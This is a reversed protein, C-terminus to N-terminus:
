VQANEQDHNVKKSPITITFTTGKGLTSNVSISGGNAEAFEKCLMLGLGTGSESNTGKTTFGDLKFLNKLNEPAIGVGTDTVQITVKQHDLAASISIKGGSPTFKIANSLLNRIITLLTDYDAYATVSNNCNTEITIGKESAPLSAVEVAKAILETVNIHKPNLTLKGTQSRAWSLLNETLTLVNSASQYIHSSFEKVESPSLENAKTALIESLGVLATFPSRLDHAVISFLKDKTKITQELEAQYQKLKQNIRDVEEYKERQLRALNKKQNFLYLTGIVVFLLFIVVTVLLNRQAKQKNIREKDLEVKTRLADVEAEILKIETKTKDLELNIHAEINAESRKANDLSDKLFVYRQYLNLANQYRGQAKEIESLSLTGLLVLYANGVRKGIRISQNITEKAEKYKGQLSHIEGIKRLCLAEGEANLNQRYKEMAKNFHSLALDLNKDQREINGLTNYLDSLVQNQNSRLAIKIAQTITSRAKSPKNWDLYTQAINKLIRTVQLDDGKKESLELAKQYANIANAYQKQDYYVNGLNQYIYIKLDPKVELNEVLGMAEDIYKQANRFLGLKRYVLSINVLTRAIDEEKGYSQRIKLSLLYRRLAEPYDEISLFTNGLENQISAETLPDGIEKSLELAKNLAEIAEANSKQMLYAKAINNLTNISSQKFGLSEKIHLSQTYYEIAKAPQSFKLYVGGLINLIDAVEDYLKVNNALQIANNLHSLSKGFDGTERYTLGINKLVQIIRLTDKAKEAAILAEFYSKLAESYNGFNWHVSGISQNCEAINVDYKKAIALAETKKALADNYQGIEKYIDGRLLLSQILLHKNKEKLAILRAKENVKIAESYNGSKLLLASKNLLAEIHINQNKNSQAISIASDIHNLADATLGTGSKYESMSIHYLAKLTDNPNNRIQTYLRNCNIAAIEPNEISYKKVLSRLSDINFKSSQSFSNLTLMIFILAIIKRQLMQM